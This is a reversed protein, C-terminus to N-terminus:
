RWRCGARQRRRRRSEDHAFARSGEQELAEGVGFAVAVFDVGHNAAHAADLSPLPLPMVAGFGCPWTSAADRAQSFAPRSGAVAVSTSACPVLVLTPSTTSTSLRVLTKPPAARWLMPSPDALLLMPWRLAPAPAAPSSLAVIATCWLSSGGVSLQSCGFGFM